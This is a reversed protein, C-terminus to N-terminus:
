LAMVIVVGIFLEITCTHKMIELHAFTDTVIQSLAIKSIARVNLTLAVKKLLQLPMRLLTRLLLKKLLESTLLVGNFFSCAACIIGQLACLLLIEALQQNVLPANRGLMQYILLM